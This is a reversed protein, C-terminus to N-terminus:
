SKKSGDDAELVMGSYPEIWSLKDVVGKVGPVNEAAVRLADRQREDVIAGTFTVIGCDVAIEVNATSVFSQERLETVVADRLAGDGGCAGERADHQRRAALARLLNARSVIGVVFGGSVVPVRKIHRKEMLRVIETISTSEQVTVVDHTMVERVRRSHSMVYRQANQGPGLLFEIWRAKRAATGIEARALFDGESVLGVLLGDDDVVPLGSVRAELMIAIAEDITADAKVTKVPQTMIEAATIAGVSTDSM